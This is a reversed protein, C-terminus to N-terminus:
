NKGNTASDDILQLQDNEIRETSISNFQFTDYVLILIFLVLIIGCREIMGKSGM